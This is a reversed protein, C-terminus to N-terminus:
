AGIGQPQLGHLGKCDLHSTENWPYPLGWMPFPKGLTYLSAKASELGSNQAEAWQNRGIEQAQTFVSFAQCGPIGSSCPVPHQM